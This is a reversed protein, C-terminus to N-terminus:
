RKYRPKEHGKKFRLAFNPRFMQILTVKDFM